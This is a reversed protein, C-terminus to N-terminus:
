KKIQIGTLDTVIKVTEKDDDYFKWYATEVRPSGPPNKQFLIIGAEKVNDWDIKIETKM